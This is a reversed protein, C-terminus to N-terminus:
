VALRDVASGVVRSVYADELEERRFLIPVRDKSGTVSVIVDGTPGIADVRVAYFARRGSLALLLPARLREVLAGSEGTVAIPQPGGERREMRAERMAASDSDGRERCHARWRRRSTARRAGAVARRFGALIEHGTSLASL